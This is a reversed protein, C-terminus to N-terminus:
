RMDQPNIARPQTLDQRNSSGSRDQPNSPNIYNGRSGGVGSRAGLLPPRPGARVVGDSPPLKIVAPKRGCGRSWGQGDRHWHRYKRCHVGERLGLADATERVSIPATMTISNAPSAALLSLALGAGATLLLSRM